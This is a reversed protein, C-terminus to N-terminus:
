LPPAPVERVHGGVVRWPQGGVRAWVRTYRYTGRILRGDFEVALPTRLEVIEPDDPGVLVSGLSVPAPANM